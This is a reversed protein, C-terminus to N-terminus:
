RAARQVMDILTVDCALLYDGSFITGQVPVIGSSGRPWRRESDSCQGSGQWVLLVRESDAVGCQVSTEIAVLPDCRDSMVTIPM